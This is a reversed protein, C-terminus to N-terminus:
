LLVHMICTKYYRVQNSPAQQLTLVTRNHLTAMRLIGKHLIAMLLYTGEQLFFILSCVIPSISSVHALSKVIIIYNNNVCYLHQLLEMMTFFVPANKPAIFCACALIIFEQTSSIATLLMVRATLTSPFKILPVLINLDNIM